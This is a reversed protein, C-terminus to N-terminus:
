QNPLGVGGLPAIEFGEMAAILPRAATIVARVDERQLSADHDDKSRWVETIWIINPDDAANSIVYIYCGNMERMDNAAKLLHSTLADRQGPHATMKGILGYM